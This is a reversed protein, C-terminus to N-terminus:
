PCDVVKPAFLLSFCNNKGKGLSQQLLINGVSGPNTLHNPDGPYFLREEGFSKEKIVFLITRGATERYGVEPQAVFDFLGFTSHTFTYLFFCCIGHLVVESRNLLLPLLLPDFAIRVTHGVLRILRLIIHQVHKRIGAAGAKVHPM